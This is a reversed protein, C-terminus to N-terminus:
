KELSSGRIRKNSTKQLFLASRSSFLVVFSAFIFPFFNLLEVWGILSSSKCAHYYCTWLIKKLWFRDTYFVYVMGYKSSFWIQYGHKVFCSLFKAQKSNKFCYNTPFGAFQSSWYFFTSFSKITVCFCFVFVFMKLIRYIEFVPVSM